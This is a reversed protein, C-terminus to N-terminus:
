LHGLLDFLNSHFVHHLHSNVLKFFFSMTTGFKLYGFLFYGCVNVLSAERVPRQVSRICFLFGLSKIRILAFCQIFNLTIVGCSPPFEKCNSMKLSMKFIILKTLNLHGKYSYVAEPSWVIQDCSAYVFKPLKVRVDFMFCSLLNWTSATQRAYFVFISSCVAKKPAIHLSTSFFM